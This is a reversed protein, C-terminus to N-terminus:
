KNDFTTGCIGCTKDEPRVKRNGCTQCEYLGSKLPMKTHKRAEFYRARKRDQYLEIRLLIFLFLFMALGLAFSGKALLPLISLGMGGSLLYLAAPIVALFITAVALIKHGYGISNIKKM